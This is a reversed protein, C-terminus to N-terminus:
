KDLNDAERRDDEEITEIIYVAVGAAVGMIISFALELTFMYLWVFAMVASIITYIPKM